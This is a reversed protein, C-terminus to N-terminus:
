TSFNFNKVIIKVEKKAIVVDQEAREFKTYEGCM